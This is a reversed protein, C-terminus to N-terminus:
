HRQQEQFKKIRLLANERIDLYFLNYDLIHLNNMKGLKEEINEPLDVWLIKHEPDISTGICGYCVKTSDMGMAGKHKEKPVEDFSTNWSVPNVCISNGNERKVIFDSTGKKYSRWGVFCGTAGPADCVKLEKFDDNKIQWGVIYACVLQKQLPKGDFFDQLLRIAHMAGQSHSAIIIPRGNNWHDLYYQFANKLDEYALDFAKQSAPSEPAMYAKLHAQRYRPAFIRCSNNFVSAQMLLIRDTEKNVASDDLDANWKSNRFNKTYSTPHLYFVDALTDRPGNKLLVPVSDSPNKIWPLAAWYFSNSYDPATSGEQERTVQAARRQQIRQRIQSFSISSFLLYVTFLISTKKLM